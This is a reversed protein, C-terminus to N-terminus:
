EESPAVAISVSGAMIAIGRCKSGEELLRSMRDMYEEQGPPIEGKTVTTTESDINVRIVVIDQQMGSSPMPCAPSVDMSYSVVYVDEAEKIVKKELSFACSKLQEFQQKEEDGIEPMDGLGQERSYLREMETIMEDVTCQQMDDLAGSMLSMMKGESTVEALEIAREEPTKMDPSIDTCGSLFLVFVLGFIVLRM